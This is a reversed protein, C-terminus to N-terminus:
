IFVLSQSATRWHSHGNQWACCSRSTLAELFMRLRARAYFYFVPISRVKSLLCVEVKTCANFFQQRAVLNYWTKLFPSLLDYSNTSDRTYLSWGDTSPHYTMEYVSVGLLKGKKNYRVQYNIYDDKSQGDPIILNALEEDTLEDYSKLAILIRGNQTKEKVIM